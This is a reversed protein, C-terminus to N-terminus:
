KSADRLCPTEGFPTKLKNLALFFSTLKKFGAFIVLLNQSLLKTSSAILVTELLKQKKVFINRTCLFVDCAFALYCFLFLRILFLLSLLKRECFSRLLRLNIIKRKPAKKVSSIKKNFFLLLSAQFQGLLRMHKVVLLYLMQQFFRM